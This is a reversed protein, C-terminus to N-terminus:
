RCNQAFDALLQDKQKSSPSISLFIKTNMKAKNCNKNNIYYRALALRAVPISPEMVLIKEYISIQKKQPSSRASKLLPLITNRYSQNDAANNRLIFVIKERSAVPSRCQIYWTDKNNELEHHLLKDPFSGDLCRAVVLIDRIAASSAVPIHRFNGIIRAFDQNPETTPSDTTLIWAPLDPVFSHNLLRNNARSFSACHCYVAFLVPYLFYHNCFLRYGKM